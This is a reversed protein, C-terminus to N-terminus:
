AHLVFRDNVKEVIRVGSYGLQRMEEAVQRAEAVTKCPVHVPHTLRGTVDIM